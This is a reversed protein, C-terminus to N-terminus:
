RAAGESELRKFRVVRPGGHVVAVHVPGAVVVALDAGIAAIGEPALEVAAPILRAVPAVVVAEDSSPALVAHLVPPAEVSEVAGVVEHGGRARLAEGSAPILQVVHTPTPHPTGAGVPEGREEGLGQDRVIPVVPVISIISIVTVVPIIPIVTVVSVVPVISVIVIAHHPHRAHSHSPVTVHGVSHPPLSVSVPHTRHGPVHVRERYTTAM